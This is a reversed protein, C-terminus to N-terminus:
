PVSCAIVEDARLTVSLRMTPLLGAWAAGEESRTGICSGRGVYEAPPGVDRKQSTRKRVAWVGGDAIVLGGRGGDAGVVAACVARVGATGRM